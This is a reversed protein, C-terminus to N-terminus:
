KATGGLPDQAFVSNRVESAPPYPSNQAFEAAEEIEEIIRREIDQVEEETLTENGILKTRFSRIPCKNKWEKMETESRYVGGGKPDGEFHGRFRYTKCELLTPGKGARAREAAERFVNYVSVVDMGDVIVGPIGYAAARDAVHEITTTKKMPVSIAYLNNECVFVVPLKWAAALNLGEHFTGTNSAGDGFFCAVIKGSNKVDSSLGLGAAIPIGAGVIGSCGMVGIEPAIMHMSGGRGKSYGTSKGLLEAMMKKIDGGKAICHGHGRHTSVVYDSQKLNACVGVAVAEEGIYLHILGPILGQSFLDGAKEEFKRIRLMTSFMEALQDKSLDASEVV